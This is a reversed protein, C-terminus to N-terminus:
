RRKKRALAAAIRSAAAPDVVAAVAAGIVTRLLDRTTDSQFAIAGFRGNTATHDHVIMRISPAWSADTTSTSEVQGHTTVTFHTDVVDIPQGAVTATRRGVVSGDVDVTVQGCNAHGSIKKGTDAPWPPAPVGDGDFHCTITQAGARLTVDTLFPGASRFAMTEDNDAPKTADSAIHWVQVGASNPADATISANGSVTGISSTGTQSYDYTGPTAPAPAGSALKPKSTTATTDRGPAGQPGRVRVSTSTETNSSTTSSSSSSTSTSTAKPKDKGGGCAAVLLAAATLVAALSRNTGFRM